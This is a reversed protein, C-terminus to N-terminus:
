EKTVALTFHVATGSRSTEGIWIREGHSEIVMRCFYLGLGSGKEEQGGKTFKQFLRDRIELPIGSGTDHITVCIHTGDDGLVASVGILGGAPTFKIANGVLNQLVRSLLDEDALADPLDPSVNLELYLHKDEILPLQWELADPILTSLSIPQLDLAMRGSELRSIDLIANVLELITEMSKHARLLTSRTRTDTLESTLADLLHLSVSISTLPGRLDHVMTHILDDRMRELLRAETVDRLVLLRGLPKDDDLVPLSHWNIAKNGIEFEGESAPEDGVRVRRLEALTTTVVTPAQKHLSRLASLMSCDVWTTPHGPLQLLTLAPQNIVLIRGNMGVLIIGDREAEILARLRSQEQAATQFLRAQEMAIAAQQAIAQCLSVEDATFERRRRSEWLEVYAITQGGVQLPILLITQAQLDRRYSQSARSSDLEDVFLIKPYGAELLEITGPLIDPISYVVDLDSTREQPLAQESFYEAVVTGTASIGDYRCIYVSTANVIQGMQEALNSLLTLLDLTSAILSGAQRLVTQEHLRRQMEAYLRANDLALVIAGALSEALLIDDHSFGNPRDVEINFVGLRRRGRLLPVALATHGATWNIALEPDPSLQTKGTRFARGNMGGDLVFLGISAQTKFEGARNHPVSIAVAPWGTLEAVTEVAIYAVQEPQLSEGIARLLKYTVIQRDTIRHQQHLMLVNSLVLSLQDAAVQMLDSYGVTFHDPQGHYLILMGLMQENEAFLPVSLASRIVSIFAQNGQWREDQTTDAVYAPQRHHLTWDILPQYSSLDHTYQHATTNLGNGWSILSSGAMKEDLLYFVGGQAQTLHILDQLTRHLGSQLADQEAAAPALTVLSEFLQKQTQLAAVARVRDTVDRLVMLRGTVQAFRNYFPSLQLEFHRAESAVVLEVQASVEQSNLYSSLTETGNQMLMQVPKGFVEASSRGLIIQAAPNIEVVQNQQDLLLMGDQMREWVAKHAVPMVEFLRSRFIDWAMLLGGIAFGFSTLDLVTLGLMYFINGLWPIFMGALLAISQGRYVFVSRQYISVVLNINGLVLLAYAFVLYMWFWPGRASIDLLWLSRYRTITLNHWVLGHLGNTWLLLLSLVPVISLLMLNHRDLWRQRDGYQLTFWFWFFPVVTVGTYALQNGFTLTTLNQGGLEVTYGLSWGTVALMLFAFPMAGAARRRQWAYLALLASILAGVLVPFVYPTYQWNM